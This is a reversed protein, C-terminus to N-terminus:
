AFTLVNGKVGCNHWTLSLDTNAFLYPQNPIRDGYTLNAQASGDNLIKVRDRVDMSTLNGGLTLWNSYSYRLGLTYGKTRM